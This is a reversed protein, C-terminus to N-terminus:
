QVEILEIHFVLEAKAPIRPPSGREGYGLEYPIFFTAEDGEKLLAVGEDWGKIVGGTGLLFSFPKGGKYSNDFGQGDTLFGTYNVSVRKGAQAQKGTGAKHIIYKLGSATTKLQADLKGAKYSEILTKTSKAIAEEKAKGAALIKDMEAKTKIDVLKMEFKIVDTPLFGTPLGPVSDLRQWLTISDGKAMLRLAEYTPPIPKTINALPPIMQEYAQGRDYSSQLKTTDNKFINLHFSVKDGEQVKPGDNKIHHIYEYGSATKQKNATTTGTGNCSFM